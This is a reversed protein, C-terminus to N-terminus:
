AVQLDTLKNRVPDDLAESKRTEASMNVAVSELTACVVGKQCLTQWIVFSSGGIKKVGTEISIGAGAFVEAQYNITAQVISFFGQTVPLMRLSRFLDQRRADFWGYILVNDVHGADNEDMSTPTYDFKLM